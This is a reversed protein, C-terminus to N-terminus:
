PCVKEGDPSQQENSNDVPELLLNPDQGESFYATLSKKIENINYTSQAAIQILPVNTSQCAGELFKDRDKRKKSNHFRDNLEIACIVSLDNKNCLLFDFHKDLFREDL